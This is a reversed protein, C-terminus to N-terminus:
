KRKRKQARHGDIKQLTKQLPEMMMKAVDVEDIKVAERVAQRIKTALGELEQVRNPM